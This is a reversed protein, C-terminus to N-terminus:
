KAVDVAMRIAAQVAAAIPATTAFLTTLIEASSHPLRPISEGTTTTEEENKLFHWCCCSPCGSSHGYTAVESQIAVVALGVVM